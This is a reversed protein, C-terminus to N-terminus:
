PILVVMHNAMYSILQQSLKEISLVILLALAQSYDIITPGAYLKFDVGTYVYDRHPDKQM